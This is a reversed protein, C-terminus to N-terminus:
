QNLQGDPKWALDHWQREVNTRPNDGLGDGWHFSQGFLPRRVARRSTLLAASGATIARQGIGDPFHLRTAM